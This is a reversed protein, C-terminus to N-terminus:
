AFTQNQTTAVFTAVSQGNILLDFQETGEDGRAVVEIESGSNAVVNPYQFYGDSHLTESERFGPVIGDEPKWTGTSFVDPSETQLTVGEITVSDVRLNRDTGTAEDFLDNTFVARIQSSSADSATQFTFDQLATGISEFTAVTTGDIQLAM